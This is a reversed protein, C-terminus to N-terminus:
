RLIARLAQNLEPYQFRYGEQLLRQPLMRDSVLLLEALEGFLLRLMKEPMPFLTPRHLAKGLARTFAENTVPQPASANYAGRAEDQKLLWAYIAAIDQRHIWPFWHQGNGLRGGLGLRFPLLMRGLSGGGQDLVVGTRVLCVRIGAAEAQLAEQEWARCLDHTFGPIPPTAETIEADGQEGYYGVASASILVKPPLSQEKMWDVLQRTTNVRSDVLEQKREPTWRQDAIGAGALNIVAQVSDRELADLKQVHDTVGRPLRPKQQRSLLVLQHGQGALLPCLAQGIFGTGGTILIRM